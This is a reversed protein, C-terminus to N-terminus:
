GLPQAAPEVFGFVAEGGADGPPQGGVLTAQGYPAVVEEALHLAGLAVQASRRAGVLLYEADGPRRPRAARRLRQSAVRVDPQGLQGVLSILKVSGPPM